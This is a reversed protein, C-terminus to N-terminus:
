EFFFQLDGQSSGRGQQDPFGSWGSGTTYEARGDAFYTSPDYGYTAGERIAFVSYTTDSPASLVLHYSAGSALTRRADFALRAWSAHGGGGHDGPQGIPIATASIAGAEVLTGDARELRVTIPSGGSVRMLRVNVAAVSRDAGTVNFAERVKASGGISVYSNIWVEMYGLGSTVGNAYDLQMIPITNPRDAWDDDGYRLPQGWDVDSFRPQRPSTPQYMFIGDLSAYNAAPNADVNRFVVHYLSGAALSAPQDFSVAYLGDVPRFTTRALVTGSPMNGAGNTQVTVEFTGGTGAGYGAHNPGIVYIRVSNLASSTSSRFRYATSVADPGGVQTNNLSDMGIASGYTASGAAPAHTTGGATATRAGGRVVFADIAVTPHGRTGSVVIKLTHRALGTWKRTFPVSDPSFHRAWLNITAVRKGDIYVRAQGRSPGKPGLWAIGSGRFTISASAGARNSMRVRGNTYGRHSALVWRGRYHIRSSREEVVTTAYSAKWRAILGGASVGDAPSSPITAAMLGLVIAAAIPRRRRATPTPAPLAGEDIRRMGNWFM